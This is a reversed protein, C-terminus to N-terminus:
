PAAFRRYGRIGTLGRHAHVAGNTVSIAPCSELDQRTQFEVYGTDDLLTHPYEYREAPGYWRHDNGHDKSKGARHARDSVPIAYKRILERANMTTEGLRGTLIGLLEPVNM